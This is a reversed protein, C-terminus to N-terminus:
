SNTHIGRNNAMADRFVNGTNARPVQLACGCCYERYEQQHKECFNYGLRRVPENTAIFAKGEPGCVGGPKRADACFGTTPRGHRNRKLVMAGCKWWRGNRVLRWHACRQCQDAWPPPEASGTAPALPERKANESM